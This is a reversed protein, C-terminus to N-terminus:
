ISGLSRGPLHRLVNILCLAAVFFCLSSKYFLGKRIAFAVSKKIIIHKSNSSRYVNINFQIVQVVHSSTDIRFYEQTVVPSASNNGKLPSLNM